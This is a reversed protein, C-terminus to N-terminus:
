VVPDGPIGPRNVLPESSRGPQETFLPGSPGAFLFFATTSLAAVLVALITISLM